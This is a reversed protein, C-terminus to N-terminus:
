DGLTIDASVEVGRETFGVVVSIRDYFDVAVLLVEAFAAQMEEDLDKKRHMMADGLMTYYSAADVDVSMFPPPSASDAVLLDPLVQEANPSVSIALTSQNLVIWASEVGNGTAPLEFQRPEGDPEISLEALEPSMMQVFALLGPADEMALVFSADISEPPTKKQFDFGQIDKVLALFGRFNYAVPPLPQSLAQRGGAV